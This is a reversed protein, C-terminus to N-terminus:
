NRSFYINCENNDKDNSSETTITFGNKQLFEKADVSTYKQDKYLKKEQTTPMEIVGAKVRNIYQGLGFLVELDKGQADCHLYDIEEIGHEEVFDDLRIVEVDITETVVFDTRGPWTKDLNDNFTNLSSCGWDATGAVHFQAVGAIDSVAKQVVIYNPKGRAVGELIEVMHPTPEFAYVTNNPDNAYHAMSRGDNAGVDFYIGM